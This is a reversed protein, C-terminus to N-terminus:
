PLAYRAAHVQIFKRIIQTKGCGGLGTVVLIRRQNPDEADHTGLIVGEIFEWPEKRM